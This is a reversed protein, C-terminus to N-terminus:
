FLIYNLDESEFLHFSRILVKEAKHPMDGANLSVALYIFGSIALYPESLFLNELYDLNDNYLDNALKFDRFYYAYTITSSM